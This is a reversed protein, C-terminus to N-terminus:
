RNLGFEFAFGRLGFNNQASVASGGGVWSQHTAGLRVYYSRNEATQKKWQIGGYFDGTLVYEDAGFRNVAPTQMNTAIQDREGFLISGGFTTVFELKTHGIPRYYEFRFKPGYVRLDSTSRIAGIVNGGANTLEADLEQFVSAYQFGFMGNLRSIPLKIEKFFLVSFTEIDISHVATLQEGVNVAELTSLSSPGFGSSLQASNTGDSTFGSVNSGQDYQWYDLEVGPGFNSEFGLRLRPAAEYDFDFAESSAFTAAAFSSNFQTIASNQQFAPQLYLVSGSGFYRGTALIEGLGPYDKKKDEFDFLPGHDHDRGRFTPNPTRHGLDPRYVPFGNLSQQDFVTQPLVLSQSAAQPDSNIGLPYRRTAGTRSTTEAYVPSSVTPTLTSNDVPFNNSSTPGNSLSDIAASTAQPSYPLVNPGSLFPKESTTQDFANLPLDASNGQSHKASKFPSTGGSRPNRAANLEVTGAERQRILSNFPPPSHNISVSNLDPISPSSSKPSTSNGWGGKVVQEPTATPRRPSASATNSPFQFPAM